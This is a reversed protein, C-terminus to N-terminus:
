QFGPALPVLLDQARGSHEVMRRAEVQSELEVLSEVGSLDVQGDVQRPQPQEVAGGGVRQEPSLQLGLLSTAPQAGWARGVQHQVDQLDDPRRFAQAGVVIRWDASRRRHRVFGFRRAM